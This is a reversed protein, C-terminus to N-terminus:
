KSNQYVREVAQLAQTCRTQIEARKEDAGDTGDEVFELIENVIRKMNQATEEGQQLEYSKMILCSLLEEAVQLQAQSYEQKWEELEWLQKLDKWYTCFQKQQEKRDDTRGLTEYYSGIKAHIHASESWDPQTEMAGAAKEAECFWKYAASKGGSSEYFYWYAMGLRYSLLGYAESNEKMNEMITQEKGPETEFLLKKWAEEEEEDFSCDQTIRELLHLMWTIDSPFLRAAQEYCTFAQGFGLGESTELLQRYVLEDDQVTQSAASGGAFSAAFFYLVIVFLGLAPSARRIRRYATYRRKARVVAQYLCRSNQFRMTKEERICRYILSCAAKKWSPLHKGARYASAADREGDPPRGFLCYFMVAGFGYIDSRADATDERCQQEPAAFGKTGICHSHGEQISWPVSTGFDILVIRGDQKMLINSPKIDLHLVPSSRLHLYMLVESLQQAVSYFQDASVEGSTLEQLGRGRIYEMILWVQEEEELVDFIQPLSPHHLHKMMNLEHMRNGFLGAGLSKAARLQETAMHRVLYVSGEGGRGLLRIVRYSSGIMPGPDTQKGTYLKKGGRMM